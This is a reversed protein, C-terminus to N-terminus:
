IIRFNNKIYTTNKLVIIKLSGYLHGRSNIIEDFLGSSDNEFQVSLEFLYAVCLALSDNEKCPSMNLIHVELTEHKDQNCLMRLLSKM